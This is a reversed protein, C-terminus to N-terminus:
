VFLFLLISDLSRIFSLCVKLQSALTRYMRASFDEVDDQQFGSSLLATDYLLWALDKTSEESPADASLKNLAIVIPHRPNLELTRTAAMSKVAEGTSFTQARMIREM